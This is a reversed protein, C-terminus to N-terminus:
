RHIVHGTRHRPNDRPPTRKETTRRRAESESAKALDKEDYRASVPTNGATAGSFYKHALAKALPSGGEREVASTKADLAKGVVGPSRADRLAKMARTEQTQISGDAQVVGSIGPEAPYPVLQGVKLVGDAILKRVYAQADAIAAKEVRGM